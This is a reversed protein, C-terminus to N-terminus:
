RKRDEISMVGDRKRENVEGERGEWRRDGRRETCARGALRNRKRM